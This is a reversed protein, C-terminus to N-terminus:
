SAKGTLAALCLAKDAEEAKARAHASHRISADCLPVTFPKLLWFEGRRRSSAERRKAYM